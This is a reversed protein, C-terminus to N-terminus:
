GTRRGESLVLRDELHEGEAAHGQERAGDTAPERYVYKGGRLWSAGAAVLCAIIAFDFAEHLGDKFPGSILAPFFQPGTLTARNAASLHALVSPGILNQVPNYGLFAAFLTSIPPLHSTKEAVESPVGHSVLGHFLTASLASSLGVIMLTFFIGISLVQAANQFTSNMGSGVGRHQPPLSNMVGARNPSAFAGMSVGNLLLLFAFSWFPFDIPLLELLGFTLAACVMGGSAFPRSGFRDSL